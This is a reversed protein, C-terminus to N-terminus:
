LALGRLSAGLTADALNAALMAIWWGGVGRLFTFKLRRGLLVVLAVFVTMSISRLPTAVAGALHEETLGPRDLAAALAPTAINCVAIVAMAVSGTHPRLSRRPSLGTRATPAGSTLSRHAAISM